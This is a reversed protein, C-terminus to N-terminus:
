LDLEGVPEYGGLAETREVIDFTHLAIAEAIICDERTKGSQAYYEPRYWTGAHM